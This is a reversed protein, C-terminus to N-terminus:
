FPVDCVFVVTLTSWHNYLVQILSWFIILNVCWEPAMCINGGCIAAFINEFKFDFCVHAMMFPLNLQVYIKCYYYWVNLKFKVLLFHMFHM